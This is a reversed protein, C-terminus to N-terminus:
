FSAVIAQMGDVGITGVGEADQGNVLYPQYAIVALFQETIMARNESVSDEGSRYGDDDEGEADIKNISGPKSGVALDFNFRIFDAMTMKGQGTRESLNIM